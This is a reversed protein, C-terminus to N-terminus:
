DSKYLLFKKDDESLNCWDCADPNATEDEKIVQFSDDWLNMYHTM